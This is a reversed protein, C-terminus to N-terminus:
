SATAALGDFFRCLCRAALTMARTSRRGLRWLTPLLSPRAAVALGCQWMSVSGDPRLFRDPAVDLSEDVGDLIVRVAVPEVAAALAAEAIAGSEMDVAAAGTQVALRRKAEVGGVVRDMTLLTGHHVALGGDTAAQVARELLRRAGPPGVARRM